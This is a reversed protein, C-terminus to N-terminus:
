GAPIGDPGQAAAIQAASPSSLAEVDFTNGYPRATQTAAATRLPTMAATTGGGAYGGVMAPEDGGKWSKGSGFEQAFQRKVEGVTKGALHPNVKIWSAPLVNEMREDDAARLFREAKGPGFHHAAYVEWDVPERGLDDAIIGANTRTFDDFRRDQEAPDADAASGSGGLAHWTGNIFGYRGSATGVKSRATANDRSERHAVKQRYGGPPLPDINALDTSGSATSQHEAGLRNLHNMGGGGSGGATTDLAPLRRGPDFVPAAAVLPLTADATAPAADQEQLAQAAMAVDDAPPATRAAPRQQLDAGGTVADLLGASQDGGVVRSRFQERRERDAKKQEMEQRMAEMQLAQAERNQAATELQSKAVPDGFLAMGLNSIGQAWPSAQSMPNSIRAM